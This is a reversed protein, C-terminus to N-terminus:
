PFGATRTKWEPAHEPQPDTKAGKPVEIPRPPATWRSSPRASDVGLDGEDSVLHTTRHGVGSLIRPAGWIEIRKTSTPDLAPLDRCRHLRAPTKPAVGHM